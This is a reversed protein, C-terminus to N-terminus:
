APVIIPVTWPSASLVGFSLSAPIVELLQETVKLLVKVERLNLKEAM